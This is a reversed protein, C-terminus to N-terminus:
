MRNKQQPTAPPLDCIREDLPPRDAACHNGGGGPARIREPAAGVLQLDAGADGHVCQTSRGAPHAGPEIRWGGAAAGNGRDRAVDLSDDRDPHGADRNAACPQTGDAVQHRGPRVVSAAFRATRGPDGGAVFDGGGAPDAPGNDARRGLHEPGPEDVSRLFGPGPTRLCDVAGRGPELHEDPHIPDAANRPAYEELYIATGVGVFFSFIASGIVIWISGWIGSNMGAIEPKRSPMDTILHWSVWHWAPSSFRGCCCESSCSRWRRPSFSSSNGCRVSASAPPLGPRGARTRHQRARGYPTPRSM